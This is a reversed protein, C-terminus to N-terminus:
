RLVFMRLAKTWLSILKESKHGNGLEFHQEM